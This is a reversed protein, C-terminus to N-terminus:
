FIDVNKKPFKFTFLLKVLIINVSLDFNKGFCSLHFGLSIFGLHGLGVYRERSVFVRVYRERTV